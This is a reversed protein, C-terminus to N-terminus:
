RDDQKENEEKEVAEDKGEEGETEDTRRRGGNGRDRTACGEGLRSM